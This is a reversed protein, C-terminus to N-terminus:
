RARRPWGPGGAVPLYSAPGRCGVAQLAAPAGRPLPAARRRACARSRAGLQWRVAGPPRPLPLWLLRCAAAPAGCLSPFRRAGGPACRAPGAARVGGARGRGASRLRPSLHPTPPSRAPASTGTRHGRGEAGARGPTLLDSSPGRAAGTGKDGPSSRASDPPPPPLCLTLPNLLAILGLPQQPQPAPPCCVPGKTGRGLSPSCGHGKMRSRHGPPVAWDQPGWWLLSSPPPPPPTGARRCAPSRLIGPGPFQGWLLPPERGGLPPRPRPPAPQPGWLANAKATLTGGTRTRPVKMRMKCAPLSLGRAM